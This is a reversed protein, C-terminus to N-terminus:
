WELIYEVDTFSSNEYLYKLLNTEGPACEEIWVQYIEDGNIGVSWRVDVANLDAYNIAGRVGADQAKDLLYQTEERINILTQKNM